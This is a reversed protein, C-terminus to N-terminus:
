FTPELGLQKKMDNIKKKMENLHSNSLNSEPQPETVVPVNQQFPKNMLPMTVQPMTHGEPGAEWEQKRQHDSRGMVNAMLETRQCDLCLTSGKIKPLRNCMDCMRSPATGRRTNDM